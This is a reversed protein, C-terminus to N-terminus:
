MSGLSTVKHTHSRKPQYKPCFLNMYEGGQEWRGGVSGYVRLPSGAIRANSRGKARWAAKEGMSLMTVNKTRPVRAYKWTNDAMLCEDKKAGVYGEVRRGAWANSRWLSHTPTLSLLHYSAVVVDVFPTIGNSSWCITNLKSGAGAQDIDM